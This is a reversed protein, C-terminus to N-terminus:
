PNGLKLANLSNVRERVVDSPSPYAGPHRLNLSLSKESRPGRSTTAADKDLAQTARVCCRWAQGHNSTLVFNVATGLLVGVCGPSIVMVVAGLGFSVYACWCMSPMCRHLIPHAWLCLDGPSM